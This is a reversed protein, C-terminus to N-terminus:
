VLRQPNQFLSKKYPTFLLTHIYNANIRRKQWSVNILPKDTLKSQCKLLASEVMYHDLNELDEPQFGYIHVEKAHIKAQTQTRGFDLQAMMMYTYSIDVPTSTSNQIFLMDNQDRFPSPRPAVVTMAHAREMAARLSLVSPLKRLLLSRLNTPPLKWWFM